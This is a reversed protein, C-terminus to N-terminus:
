AIVPEVKPQEPSIKTNLFAVLRPVRSLRRPTPLELTQVDTNVYVRCAPGLAWNWLLWVLFPLSLIAVVVKPMPALYLLCTALFLVASLFSQRTQGYTERVVVYRVDRYFVRKYEETYGTSQVLLLHDPGGYLRVRMAIQLKGRGTGLGKIAKYVSKM